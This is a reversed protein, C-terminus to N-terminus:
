PIGRTYSGRNVAVNLSCDSHGPCCGTQEIFRLSIVTRFGFSFCSYPNRWTVRFWVLLQSFRESALILAWEESWRKKNGKRANGGYWDGRPHETNRATVQLPFQTIYCFPGFYDPTNGELFPQEEGVEEMRLLGWMKWEYRLYVPILDPKKPLALCEPLFHAGGESGHLGM